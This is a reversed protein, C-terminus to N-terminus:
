VPLTPRVLPRPLEPTSFCSVPITERGGATQAARAYALIDDVYSNGFDSWRSRDADERGTLWWFAIRAWNGDLARHLEDLKGTAVSEQNAPTPDARRDGAWRGAWARWNVPLVQYKGIADTRDNRADYDGHSERCGLGLKFQEM